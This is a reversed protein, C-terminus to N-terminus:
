RSRTGIWGLMRDYIEDTGLEALHISAEQYCGALYLVVAVPEERFETLLMAQRTPCPWPGDCDRCVWDPRRPTHEPPAHEPPAHEPPAHEPM